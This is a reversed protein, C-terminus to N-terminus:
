IFASYVWIAIKVMMYLFLIVGLIAFFQYVIVLWRPPQPTPLAHFNKAFGGDHKTYSNIDTMVMPPFYLYSVTIQEGPVLIPIVIETGGDPTNVIEYPVTPLININDPLSLHGIRVNTASKGGINKVIISHTFVPSQQEDNLRFSSIHGLYTILRPRRKFGRDLAIGVLAGLIPATITAM